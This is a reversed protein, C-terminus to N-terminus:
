SRTERAASRWKGHVQQFGYLVKKAPRQSADSGIGFFIGRHDLRRLVRTMPIVLRVTGHAQPLFELFWRALHGLLDDAFEFGALHEFRGRDGTRAEDIQPKAALPESRLNLPHGFVLPKPHRAALRCPRDDNIITRGVNGFWHVDAVQPAGNDAISEGAQQTEQSVLHDGVVVEAVPSRM